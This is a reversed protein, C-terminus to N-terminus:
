LSFKELIECASETNEVSIDKHTVVRITNFNISSVLIGKERLREVVEKAGEKNKVRAMFINTEVSELDIEFLPNDAMASAIKRAKKHDEELRPLVEEFAVLGCVAL